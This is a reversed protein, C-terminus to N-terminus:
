RSGGSLPQSAQEKITPSALEQSQAQPDEPLATAKGAEPAPNSAKPNLPRRLHVHAATTLCGAPDVECQVKYKNEGEAAIKMLVGPYWKEEFLVEVSDGVKFDPEMPVMQAVPFNAIICTVQSVRHTLLTVASAGEFPADGTTLEWMDIIANFRKECLANRNMKTASLLTSIEAAMEAPVSLRLNTQGLGWQVVDGMQVPRGDVCLQCGCAHFQIPKELIVNDALWSFMRQLHEAQPNVAASPCGAQLNSPIMSACSEGTQSKLQIKLEQIEVRAAKLEHERETLENCKEEYDLQMEEYKEKLKDHKSSEKEREALANCKEEYDIQLQEFEEKLKDYKSTDISLGDYKEPMEEDISLRSRPSQPLMTAATSAESSFRPRAKPKSLSSEANKKQQVARLLALHANGLPM